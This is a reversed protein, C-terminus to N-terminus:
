ESKLSDVPNISAARFSQIGMVTWAVLLVMLASILLFNLGLDIRYSYEELWKSMGWWALPTAIVFAILVLRTFDTSLMLVLSSVSAGLTKRIGIEKKRQEATFATLAFLGMAAIFLAFGTFVAFVKGIRSEAAYMSDFRDDMFSYTFPQGPALLKWKEEVLEIVEQTDTAKFKFSAIGTPNPNIFLLVAGINEKLSEFHFNEVVGVVTREEFDDKNFGSVNDSAFSSIKQGIPDGEFNFNKLATENIIVAMSDSPFDLSFARGKKIKMGLTELYGFDVSWNQISVLNEQNQIDKGSVWWPTDSRNTGTVPLFGSLTGSQIISNNLIEKVFTQKQDGLAYMDNVMIIQDKSFGLNKNQIFNMQSFLVITCFILIISISFQFVVLANRVKSSKMGKSIDGKLVKAPQFGSLFLAPYLGAIIGVFTAGCLLILYFAPKDFPMELNRNALINFQPLLLTALLSAIFFSIL